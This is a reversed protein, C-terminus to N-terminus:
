CTPQIIQSVGITQVVERTIEPGDSTAMYAHVSSVYANDKKPPHIQQRCSPTPFRRVNIHSGVEIWSKGFRVRCKLLRGVTWYICKKKKKEYRHINISQDTGLNGGTLSSAATPVATPAM